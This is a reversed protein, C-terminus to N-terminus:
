QNQSLHLQKAKKHPFSVRRVFQKEIRDISDELKRFDQSNENLKKTSLLIATIVILNIICLALIIWETM